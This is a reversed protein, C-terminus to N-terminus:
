KESASLLVLPVPLESSNLRLLSSSNGPSDPAQERGQTSEAAAGLHHRNNRQVAPALLKVITMITQNM